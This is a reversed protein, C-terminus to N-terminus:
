QWKTILYDAHATMIQYAHDSIFDNDKQHNLLLKFGKTHKVIKDSLGKEEYHSLATLHTLLSRSADSNKFEGGKQFREVLKKMNEASIEVKVAAEQEKEKNNKVDFSIWRITTDEFIEIKEGPERINAAKYVPSDATPKSGDTTYHISAPKNQSFTLNVTGDPQREQVLETTAPENDKGYEMAIEFMKIVGSAYEQYQLDAEQWEPQFGGPAVWKQLEPDWQTGGVEWGFAYIGYNNYLEERVNGASSYLVDSSGGVNGPQIVSDRLSKVNSLIEEAMQWYYQEDRLPPRPTTIRGDAIYSGPQWFLQGGYSHVTMFFKINSFNEALWVVNKAEPESIKGPGAYTDSTCLTSGGSYGDYISGVSYNRNLDVGWNNRYSPDAYEPGCHNTMSRRQMNRDFFSYHAGDPNNSPIIFIDVNNVIERTKEDTEYNALLREASEMAVLPTVWERAHDQAQILVGPKSGDTNKGIRIARITFPDRSIEEPASLFDTLRTAAAEAVAGSGNGSRYLNATILKSADPHHNIAAVVEAATSSIDHPEDKASALHVTIDNGNVSVETTDAGPKRILAVTIDNGGEHGYARSTVYFTSNLDGNAGSTGKGFQAQAHRRYGNTKNPLEIIETLDPYKEALEELRNYLQTPNRYGDYFGFKYGPRDLDAKTPYLWDKVKATAKSGLSSSVTVADPRPDNVKVLVRHYMYEGSDKYLDMKQSEDGWALTLDAGDKATTKAEVSLFGQGKTKFWDVRGITISDTAQEKLHRVKARKIPVPDSALRVGFDPLAKLQTKTLLADIEIGDPVREAGGAFDYGANQMENLVDSGPVLIRTLKGEEVKPTEAPKLDGKISGASTNTVISLLLIISLLIVMSRKM